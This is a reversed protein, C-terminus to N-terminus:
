AYNRNNSPQCVNMVDISRTCPAGFGGTIDERRENLSETSLKIGHSFLYSHAMPRRNNRQDTLSSVNSSSYVMKNRMEISMLKKKYEANEIKLQAYKEELLKMHMSLNQYYTKLKQYKKDIDHFRQIALDTQHNQFTCIQNLSELSKTIPTFYNEIKALSPQQLEVFYVGVQKCQPCQKDVAQKCVDCFIHGCQTLVFPQKGRAITAFCKNCIFKDM